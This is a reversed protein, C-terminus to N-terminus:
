KVGSGGSHPSSIRPGMSQPPPPPSSLPRLSHCTSKIKSDNHLFATNERHKSSVELNGTNERVPIKKKWKGQKGQATLVRYLIGGETWCILTKVPKRINKEIIEVPM